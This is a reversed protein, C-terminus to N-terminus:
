KYVKPNCYFRMDCNGCQKESKTIHSIDYDKREIKDVVEDFTAITDEIRESRKPFTIYPSGNEEKPFYLHMKSVEHGTRDEVIHAYIELQRRFGELARRNYNSLDNVDPKDGSKFDILEVTGDEGRILDITGKLIYDDKVLSVDVEAEKIIHWNGRMRDRYNLVQRLLSRRQAGSLYGRQQKVLLFYNNDFWSEILSDDEVKETEQRLVTKHIDEITQHLLTGGIMGGTRVEAFELEKYFKYQLPCNEYLLIHSTFAYEKKVNVPKIEELTVQALDVNEDDWRPTPEYIPLLYKSPNKGRGEYQENATLLLLNQARSFATYYLRWFDYYKTEPLPEFPPKHFYRSQL